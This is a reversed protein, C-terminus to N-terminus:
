RVSVPQFPGGDLGDMRALGCTIQTRRRQDGDQAFVACIKGLFLRLLDMVRQRSYSNLDGQLSTGGPAEGIIGIAINLLFIVATKTIAKVRDKPPAARAPKPSSIWWCQPHAKLKAMAKVRAIAAM